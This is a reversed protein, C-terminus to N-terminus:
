RSVKKKQKLDLPVTHSQTTQTIVFRWPSYHFKHYKAMFIKSHAKINEQNNLMLYLLVTKNVLCKDVFVLFLSTDPSLCAEQNQKCHGWDIFRNKFM